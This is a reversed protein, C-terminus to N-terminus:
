NFSALVNCLLIVKAIYKMSLSLACVNPTESRQSTPHAQQFSAGNGRFSEMPPMGYMPSESSSPRSDSRQIMQQQQSHGSMEVTSKMQPPRMMPQQHPM